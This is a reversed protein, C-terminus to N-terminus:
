SSAEAFAPPAEAKPRWDFAYDDDVLSGGRDAMSQELIRDFRQIEVVIEGAHPFPVGLDALRSSIQYICIFSDCWATVWQVYRGDALKIRKPFNSLGRDLMRRYLLSLMQADSRQTTGLRIRERKDSHYRAGRGTNTILQLPMLLPVKRTTSANFADKTHQVVKTTAYLEVARQPDTSRLDIIPQAIVTEGADSFASWNKLLEYSGPKILSELFGPTNAVIAPDEAYPLGTERAMLFDGSMSVIKVNNIRLFIGFQSRRFINNETGAVVLRKGKFNPDVSIVALRDKRGLRTDIHFRPKFDGEDHLTQYALWLGVRVKDLWDLLRYANAVTISEGRSVASVIKQAQAELGTGYSQNCPDCAPFKFTSAPRVTRKATLPDPWFLIRRNPDGTAELLWMPLVHEM